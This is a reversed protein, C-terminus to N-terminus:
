SVRRFRAYPDEPQVTGGDLVPVKVVDRLYRFEVGNLVRRTFSGYDVLWLARNAINVIRLMDDDKRVEDGRRLFALTRNREQAPSISGRDWKRGPAWEKHDLHLSVPIGRRVFMANVAPWWRRQASTYSYGDSEVEIGISDSSGLLGPWSGRGAHNCRGAAVVYFTGDRSQYLNSLPGRVGARGNIIVNLTADPRTSWVSRPTGTHHWTVWRTARLTGRTRTAWGDVEVVPVGAARLERALWTAYM